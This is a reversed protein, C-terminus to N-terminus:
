RYRGSDSGDDDAPSPATLIGSLCCMDVIGPKGPFVSLFVIITMMPADPVVPPANSRLRADEPTGLRASDRSGSLSLAWRPSKASPKTSTTGASAASGVESRVAKLPASCSKRAM